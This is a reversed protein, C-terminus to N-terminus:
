SAHAHTGKVHENRNEDHLIPTDPVNARRGCWAKMDYAM